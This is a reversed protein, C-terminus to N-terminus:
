PEHRAARERPREAAREGADGAALQYDDKVDPMDPPADLPPIGEWARAWDYRSADRLHSQLINQMRPWVGIQQWHRLRRMCTMGCGCGMEEPLDEWAIGSKLVFLVGTLTERDGIPPRGGAPRPPREPLLEKLRAWIEDTLIRSAV